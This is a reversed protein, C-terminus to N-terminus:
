NNGKGQAKNGAEKQKAAANQQKQEAKQAAQRQREEAKHVSGQQKEEVKVVAELQIEQQEATAETVAQEVENSNPEVEKSAQQKEKKAKKELKANEKSGEDETVQGDAIKGKLENMKEEFKADKAELKAAKKELKEFTRSINKIIVEQARSNKEAKGLVVLLSDINHALKSEVVAEEAQDLNEEPLADGAEDQTTIAAQLLKTAEDTKGEAILANAEAIREAAFDALLQAEKYDDFTFALRVKETMLKVFYFFDGPILSPAEADEQVTTDELDIVATDEVSSTNEEAEETTTEESIETESTTGDLVITSEIEAAQSGDENAFAAGTGMSFIITSALM